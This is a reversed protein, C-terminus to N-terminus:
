SEKWRLIKGLKESQKATLGTIEKMGCMGRISTNQLAKGARVDGIGPISTLMGIACEKESFYKRHKPFHEKELYGHMAIMWWVSSSLDRTTVVDVGMKRVTELYGYYSTALMETERNDQRNYLYGEPTIAFNEEILLVPNESFNKLHPITEFMIEDLESILESVAVKRQVACSGHTNTILYDSGTDTPLCLIENTIKAKTFQKSIFPAQKERSDILIIMCRWAIELGM